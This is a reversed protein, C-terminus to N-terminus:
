LGNLRYSRIVILPLSWSVTILFSASLAFLVGYIGFSPVLLLQLSICIVAQLPVLILFSNLSSACQLVMAFADTWIRIIQYAGLILIFGIPVVINKNPMLLEVFFPMLWILLITCFSTLLLGSILINKIHSKVPVWNNKALAEALIPWLASLVANYIFFSIGFIKTAVSYVAIDYATLYQSMIIYDIQLVGAAVVSFFWFKLGRNLIPKFERILLTNNKKSNISDKFLCNLLSITPILATPFIFIILNAFLKNDFSVDKVILLGALALLSAIAPAINSLHGRQEAYWVKYIVGGLAACISLTSTVFFLKTKQIDSLFEAQKLLLPGFYSSTFYLFALTLCGLFVALQSSAMVLHSYIKNNARAESIYNQVSSGVGFDALMFWGTMSTLLVFVAYNELGLNDMLLRVSALTSLAMVARSIWAVGAVILHEPIKSFSFRM